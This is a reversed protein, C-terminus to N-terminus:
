ARRFVWIVAAAGPLRVPVQRRLRLAGPWARPLGAALLVVSGGSRTVRSMEALVATAWANDLAGSAPLWSVSAGISADALLLERADGLQISAAPAVRSSAAVAGDDVDCGDTQWGVLLAEALIAGSGCCPDLLTGGPSGALEVMAAAVPRPLAGPEPRTGALRLGAVFQGDHFESIRIELEASDARRWRPKDRVIQATMARRLDSSRFRAESRVRGVVRFTMARTLPRVDDAWASLARQVAAPQWTSSAVAAASAGRVSGARGLEAFLEATLRSRLADARGPRDAEFFVIDSRGDFGTGTVSVGDIGALQHRLLRGIGPTCTAFLLSRRTGHGPV